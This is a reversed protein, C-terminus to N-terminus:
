RGGTLGQLVQAYGKLHQVVEAATEKRGNRTWTILIAVMAMSLQSLVYERQIPELNPPLIANKEDLMRFNQETYLYLLDFRGNSVVAKLFENNQMGLEIATELMKEPSVEWGEGHKEIASEAMRTFQYRMVDEPTDFLRYFTARSIGTVRHIDSVTISKLPKTKLCVELGRVIEEASSQSRRDSKIHYM